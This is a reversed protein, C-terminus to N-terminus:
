SRRLMVQRSALSSVDLDFLDEFGGIQEDIFSIENTGLNLVKLDM